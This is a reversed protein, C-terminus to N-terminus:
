GNENKESREPLDIGAKRCEEDMYSQIMASVSTGRLEALRKYADRKGKRLGLSLNEINEAKWRAIAADTSAKARPTVKAGKRPM